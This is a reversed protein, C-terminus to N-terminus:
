SRNNKVLDEIPPAPAAGFSPFLCSVFADLASIDWEELHEQILGASNLKYLTTGTYPKIKPSGPVKLAGELRWRLKLTRENEVGLSILDARSKAPEFLSAVANSYQKVGKVRTTPDIFLCDPTYIDKSLTGTIYYQNQVFDQRVIDRIARIDPAAGATPCPLAAATAAALGLQMIQRRNPPLDGRQERVQCCVAQKRSSHVGGPSTSRSWHLHCSGAPVNQAQMAAVGIQCYPM